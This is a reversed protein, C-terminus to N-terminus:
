RRWLRRATARCGFNADDSNRHKNWWVTSQGSLEVVILASNLEDAPKNKTRAAELDDLRWAPDEADIQARMQNLEDTGVSHFIAEGIVVVIAVVVLLVVFGVTLRRLFRM